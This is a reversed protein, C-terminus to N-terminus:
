TSIVLVVGLLSTMNLMFFDSEPLFCHNPKNKPPLSIRNSDLCFYKHNMLLDLLFHPLLLFVIAVDLLSFISSCQQAFIGILGLFIQGLMSTM